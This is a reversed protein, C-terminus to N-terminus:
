CGPGASGETGGATYIQPPNNAMVSSVPIDRNFLTSQTLLKLINDLTKANNEAEKATQIRLEQLSNQFIEFMDEISSLRSETDSIKSINENSDDNIDTPVLTRVNPPNRSTLDIIRPQFSLSPQTSLRSQAPNFTSVSDDDKYLEPNEELSSIQAITVEVSSNDGQLTPEDSKNMEDDDALLDELEAEEASFVQRTTPDWRSHLHRLKAEESFLKMFWPSETAKLFPILGAIFSRADEENEPLFTFTIGTQSRWSRDVTHFLPKNQFIKSLINLLNQRLTLGQQPEPRDLVLNATLEWTSGTCLRASSAAQCAVLSAFKTKQGFTIM